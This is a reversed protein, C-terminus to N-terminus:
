RYLVTFFRDIQKAKYLAVWTNVSYNRVSLRNLTILAPPMGKLQTMEHTTEEDLTKAEIFQKFPVMM